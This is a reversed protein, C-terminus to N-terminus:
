VMANFYISVLSSHQLPLPPPLFVCQTSGCRKQSHNLLLEQPLVQFVTLTFFAKQIYHKPVRIADKKKKKQKVRSNGLSAIYKRKELSLSLPSNACVPSETETSPSNFPSGVEHVCALPYLATSDAMVPVM